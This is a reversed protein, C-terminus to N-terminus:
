PTCAGSGMGGGSVRRKGITEKTEYPTSKKASLIKSFHFITLFVTLFRALPSRWFFDRGGTVYQRDM